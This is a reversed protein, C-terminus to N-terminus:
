GNFGVKTMYDITIIEVTFTQSKADADIWHAIFQM